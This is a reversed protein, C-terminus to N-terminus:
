RGSYRHERPSLGFRTRFVYAFHSPRRFGLQTAIDAVSLHALRPDALDHHARDLRRKMVYRAVSTQQEHFLAQLHRPSVFVARAVAAPSLDPDWLNQEIYQQARALTAARLPAGTPLSAIEALSAAILEVAATAYHRQVVPSATDATASLNKLLPYILAASGDRGNIATATFASAGPLVALMTMHPIHLTLMELDGEVQLVCPRTSDYMAFDGARVVATRDDQVLTGTGALTVGILFYPADDRAITARARAGVHPTPRARVRALQVAGATMTTVRGSFHDVTALPRVEMGLYLRCVVERWFDFRDRGDVSDTTLLVSGPSQDAGAGVSINLTM